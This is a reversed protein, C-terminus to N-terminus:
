APAPAESQKKDALAQLTRAFESLIGHLTGVFSSLPAQITGVVQGLVVERPPVKSLATVQEPSYIRGEVVGGKVAVEPKRIERLFDLIAKATAVPDENAFAIATPGALLRDLEPSLQDEIARRFLTNKVVHFEGGTPRLRRRLNTIEAVSLGRYDTLIAARSRRFAERLQEVTEVKDPRPGKTRM